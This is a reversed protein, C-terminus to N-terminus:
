RYPFALFYLTQYAFFAFQYDVSYSIRLALLYNFSAISNGPLGTALVEGELASPLTRNRAPSNIDWMGQQWFFWFM